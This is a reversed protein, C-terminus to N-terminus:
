GEDDSVRRGPGGGGGAHRDFAGIVECHPPLPRGDATKGAARDAASDLTLDAAGTVRAGLSAGCRAGPDPAAKAPGSLALASALVVSLGLVKAVPKV